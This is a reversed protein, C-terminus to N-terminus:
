YWLFLSGESSLFSSTKILSFALSYLQFGILAKRARNLQGAGTKGELVLKPAEGARLAGQGMLVKWVPDARGPRAELHSQVRCRQPGSTRGPATCLAPNSVVDKCGADQMREVAQMQVWRQERGDSGQRRRPSM